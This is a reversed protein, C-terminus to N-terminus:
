VRDKWNCRRLYRILGSLMRVIETGEEGLPDYTEQSVYKRGVAVVLHGKAELASGKSINLYQAFARDSSQGFGESINSVISDACDNLQERLKM